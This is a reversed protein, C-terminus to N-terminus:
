TTPTAPLMRVDGERFCTQCSVDNNRVWDYPVTPSFAPADIQSIVSSSFLSLITLAFSISMQALLRTIGTPAPFFQASM